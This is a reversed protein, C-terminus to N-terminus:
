DSVGASHRWVRELAKGNVEGTVADVTLFLRRAVVALYVAPSQHRRVLGERWNDRRAAEDPTLQYPDRYYPEDDETLYSLISVVPVREGARLSLLQYYNLAREGEYPCGPFWLLDRNQIDWLVEDPVEFAISVAKSFLNYDLELAPLLLETCEAFRREHSDNEM